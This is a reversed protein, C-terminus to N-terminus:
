SPNYRLQPATPRSATSAFLPCRDHLSLNGPHDFAGFHSRFEEREAQRRQAEPTLPPPRGTPPNTILSSRLEGNIVAVRAGREFYVDNYSGIDGGASLKPRDPDSPESGRVVRDVARGELRAVEEPTFM